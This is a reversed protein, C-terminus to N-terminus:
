SYGTHHRCLTLNLPRDPIRSHGPIGHGKARVPWMASLFGSTGGPHQRSPLMIQRTGSQSADVARIDKLRPYINKIFELCLKQKHAEPNEKNGKLRSLFRATEGEATLIKEQKYAKAEQIISDADSRAKPVIRNLYGQAQNLANKKQVEENILRDFDEQV